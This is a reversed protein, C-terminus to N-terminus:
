REIKLMNVVFNKSRKIERNKLMNVVFNKSRKIERNKLM